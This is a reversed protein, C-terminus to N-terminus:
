SSTLDMGATVTAVVPCAATTQFKAVQFPPGNLPAGGGGRAGRGGGRGANPYALATATQFNAISIVALAGNKAGYQQPTWYDRCSEGLPDTAGAAQGGRGRGAAQQAAVEPPVGAV